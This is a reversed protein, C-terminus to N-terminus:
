PLQGASLQGVMLDVHESFDTVPVQVQVLCAPTYTDDIAFLDGDFQQTVLRPGEFWPVGQFYVYTGSTSSTLIYIGNPGNDFLPTFTHWLRPGSEIFQSLDCSFPKLWHSFDKCIYRRRENASVIRTHGSNFSRLRAGIDTKPVHSM